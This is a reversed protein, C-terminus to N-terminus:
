TPDGAPVPTVRLRDVRRGDMRDVRLLAGPVDVEDGAVPVHGLRAMVYGGVTEYANGDPVALDIRHRLEDPRMLGPVSFSGDRRRVVGLRSRDHEDSVEGVLEEVVDELTVVGATGGYEDVVVALQLGQERLAVLLPDLRVTEPVKLAESMLQSVAV